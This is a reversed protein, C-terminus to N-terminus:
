PSSNPFRLVEALQPLLWEPCDAIPWEFPDRLWVRGPAPPVIVLAGIGKLELGDDRTVTPMPESTGFWFHGGDPTKDAVTLPLEPLAYLADAGGNRLDFDLVYLYRGDRLRSGTPVAVMADVDADFFKMIPIEGRLGGTRSWQRIKPKKSATVPIIGLGLETRYELAALAANGAVQQHV